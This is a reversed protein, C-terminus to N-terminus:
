IAAKEELATVRANLSQVVPILALAIKDYHIGRALGVDDYFVLWELGLEVLDEAILGQEYPNTQDETLMSSKWHFEVVQMALVAQADVAFALIDKKFRRSSASVALRGDAGIYATLGGSVGNSRGHPTYIPNSGFNSAGIDRKNRLTESINDLDIGVTNGQHPINYADIGLATRATAATTSGTGGRAIAFVGSTIATAPHTGATIHNAIYDRGKNQEDYANRLDNTGPVVDMGIAAAADGNAM